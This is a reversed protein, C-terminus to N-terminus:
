LAILVSRVGRDNSPFVNPNGLGGRGGGGGAGILCRRHGARGPGRLGGIERQPANPDHIVSM